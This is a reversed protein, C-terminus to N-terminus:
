GDGDLVQRLDGRWRKDHRRVEAPMGCPISGDVVMGLAFLKKVSCCPEMIELKAAVKAHCGFPGNVNRVATALHPQYDTAKVPPKKSRYDTVQVQTLRNLFVLPTNGVVQTIDQAIGAVQALNQQLLMCRQKNTAASNGPPHVPSLTGTNSPSRPSPCSDWCKTM